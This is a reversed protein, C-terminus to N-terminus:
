CTSRDAPLTGASWFETTIRKVCDVSADDDDDYTALVSGSLLARASESWRAVGWSQRTQLVIAPVKSAFAAQPLRGNRQGLGLGNCPSFSMAYLFGAKPTAQLVEATSIRHNAPAIGDSCVTTWFAGGGSTLLAPWPDFDSDEEALLTGDGAEAAALAAGVRDWITQDYTANYVAGAVSYGSLYQEDDGTGLRLPKTDLAQVLATYRAAAGAGSRLPCTASNQCADIFKLVQKEVNAASDPLFSDQQAMPYPDFLVMGRVKTPHKAAYAAGITAEHAWLEFSLKPEGLAVRIAELDNVVDAVGMNQALEPNRKQCEDAWKEVFELGQEVTTLDTFPAVGLDSFKKACILPTSQGTGRREFAIVEFNSWGAALNSDRVDLKMSAVGSRGPSGQGTILTGVKATDAPLPRKTLSLSIKTGLPKDADVPVRLETCQFIPDDCARWKLTSKTAKAEKPAKAVKVAKPKTAAEATSFMSSALLAVASSGVALRLATRGSATAPQLRAAGDLNTSTAGELKNPSRDNM